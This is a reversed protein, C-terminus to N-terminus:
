AEPLYQLLYGWTKDLSGKLGDPIGPSILKQGNPTMKILLSMIKEAIEDVRAVSLCGSEILPVALDEFNSFNPGIVTPIGCRLPEMPNHGGHWLWGGGVLAVHGLGYVSPLEGMTDALFIETGQWDTFGTPFSTTARQFPHGIKHLFNAVEDFRRPQRPALILRTHPFSERTKRWAAVVLAEEGEVTNGAVLIQEDQWGSRLSEWGDHLPPPPPVDAKLNGGLVVNPAGLLCYHNASGLDRAAVLSLRQATRRILPRLISDTTRETLRGNVICIPIRRSELVKFLNPWLETELAVFISPPSHFFSRLGASDDIPFAGGTFLGSGCDWSSLKKRLLELGAKTGTTIHVRLSAERMKGLMGAAVM